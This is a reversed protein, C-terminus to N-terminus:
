VHARGIKLITLAKRMDPKTKTTINVCIFGKHKSKEKWAKVYTVKKFLKIFLSVDPQGEVKEKNYNFFWKYNHKHKM